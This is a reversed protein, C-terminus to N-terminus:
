GEVLSDAEIVGITHQTESDVWIGLSSVQVVNPIKLVVAHDVSSNDRETDSSWGHIVLRVGSETSHVRLLNNAASFAEVLHWGGGVSWVPGLRDLLPGKLALADTISVVWDWSCTTLVRISGDDISSAGIDTDWVLHELVELLAPSLVDMVQVADRVVVEALHHGRADVDSWLELWHGEGDSALSEFHAWAEVEMLGLALSALEGDVRVLELSASSGQNKHSIGKQSVQILNVIELVFGDSKSHVLMGLVLDEHVVITLSRGVSWKDLGFFIVHNGVGM